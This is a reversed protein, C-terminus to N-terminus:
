LSGVMNSDLCYGSNTKEGLEHVPFVARWLPLWLPCRSWAIILRSCFSRQLLICSKNPLETLFRRGMLAQWCSSSKTWSRPSHHSKQKSAPLQLPEAGLQSLQPNLTDSLFFKLPASSRIWCSQICIARHGTIRSGPCEVKGEVEKNVPFILARSCPSTMIRCTCLPCLLSGGAVQARYTLVATLTDGTASPSLATSYSLAIQMILMHGLDLKLWM